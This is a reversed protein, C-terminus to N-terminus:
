VVNILWLNRSPLLVDLTSISSARLTIAGNIGELRLVRVCPQGNERNEVKHRVLKAGSRLFSGKPIASLAM